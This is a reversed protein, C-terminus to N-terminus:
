GLAVCLQGFLPDQTGSQSLVNGSLDTTQRGADRALTEWHAGWLVDMWSTTITGDDGDFTSNSYSRLRYTGLTQTQDLSQKLLTANFRTADTSGTVTGTDDVWVTTRDTSSWSETVSFSECTLQFQGSFDNSTTTKTLGDALAQTGGALLGALLAVGILLSKV